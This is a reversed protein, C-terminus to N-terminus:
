VAVNFRRVLEDLQSATTALEAASSAIEQTSASTQQTSASVQEASASSSEAVSAVESIDREARQAEESIHLVSRAIDSVRSGVDEVARGIEEFAVRAQEVTDVGDRTRRAGEDVAKVARGTESQIEGILAAIQGAATHSEEALKRVEEAVVAFGKGQEGARAAEIAANLALLNTQQSLATITEVIGGIRESKHSLTQITEGVQASSDALARIAETAEGAAAVGERTVKQAQEAAQSTSHANEASEAASRAAQQMVERTSEVMRVQREAGQAVDGVANAIEGVARGAEESTSAMQQSSASVNGASLSMEGVMSSLAARTANYDRLSAATKDILSNTMRGMDGIEDERLDDIPETAAKAEVTLDGEAIASVGRRLSTMDREDLSRLRDVVASVPKVVTRTLLLAAAVGVLAALIAVIITITVSSQGSSTTERVLAAKRADVSKILADTRELLREYVKMLPGYLLEAAAAQHAQIQQRDGTERFRSYLQEDLKWFEAWDAKMLRVLEQERPTAEALPFGALVRDLKAKDALEGARNISDDPLAKGTSEAEYAVAYQWGSVDGNYFRINQTAAAVRDLGTRQDSLSNQSTAGHVAVLAVVALLLLVLGFSCLLRARLSLNEFRRM